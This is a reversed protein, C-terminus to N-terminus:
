SVSARIYETRSRLAPATTWFKYIGAAVDANLIAINRGTVIGNGDLTAPILISDGIAAGARVDGDPPDCAGGRKGAERNSALCRTTHLVDKCLM